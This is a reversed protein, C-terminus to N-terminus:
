LQVNHRIRELVDLIAYKKMKLTYLVTNDHRHYIDYIDHSLIFFGLNYNISYPMFNPGLFEWKGLRFERPYIEIRWNKNLRIHYYDKIM